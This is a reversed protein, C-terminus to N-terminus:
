VSKMLLHGAKHKHKCAKKGIVTSMNEYPKYYLFFILRM